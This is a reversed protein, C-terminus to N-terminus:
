DGVPGESGTGHRSGAWYLGGAGLTVLTGLLLHVVDLRVPHRVVDDPHDFVFDHVAITLGDVVAPILYGSLGILFVGVAWGLTPGRSRGRRRGDIVVIGVTALLIFAGLAGVVLNM